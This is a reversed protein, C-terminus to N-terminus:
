AGQHIDRGQPDGCLVWWFDGYCINMVLYDYVDDLFVTLTTSPANLPCFPLVSVTQPSLALQLLFGIDVQAHKLFDM